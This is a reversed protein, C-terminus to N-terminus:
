AAAAMFNQHAAKMDALSWGFHESGSLGMCLLRANDAKVALEERRLDDGDWIYVDSHEQTKMKRRRHKSAPIDTDLIPFPFGRMWVM